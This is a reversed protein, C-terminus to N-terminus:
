YQLWSTRVAAARGLVQKAKTAEDHPDKQFLSIYKKDRPYYIVYKLDLELAAREAELTAVTAAVTAPDSVAAATVAASADTADAAASYTQAAESSSSSGSDNSASSSSSSTSSSNNDDAAAQLATLKKHLQALRRMIKRKEFFKVQLPFHTSICGLAKAISHIASAVSQVV